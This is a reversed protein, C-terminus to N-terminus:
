KNYTTFDIIMRGQSRNDSLMKLAKNVDTLQFKRTLLRDFPFLGEYFSKIYFSIDRDPDSEGGWSGIIKKQCILGFPDIAITEGKKLNGAIVLLGNNRIAEYAKEMAQKNGSAEVAFDVGEPCFARIKKSVSNQDFLITETAGIKQAFQLSSQNIDVAIIKKYGKMKAGLIVGGGIGGAGFVAMTTAKSPSHYRVIGAGTLVACGLLAGIDYPIKQTVKVLRNESIVAEESFTAAPGSNITKGKYKYQVAGGDLGKCKIWTIVVKDGAEVKTVGKGTEEVIGFGEHGLLHPLYQDQGKFGNIENLQSRCIGSALMKVLVQGKKIKPIEIEQIILPSNLHYLVAAKTKMSYVLFLGRQLM